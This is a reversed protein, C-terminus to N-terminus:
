RPISAVHVPPARFLVRAEGVAARRQAFVVACLPPFHTHTCSHVPVVGAGQMRTGSASRALSVRMYNKLACARVSMACAHVCRIATFALCSITPRM